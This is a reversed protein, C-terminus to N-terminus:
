EYCDRQQRRGARLGFVCGVGVVCQASPGRSNVVGDHSDITVVIDREVECRGGDIWLVRRALHSELFHTCTPQIHREKNDIDALGLSRRFIVGLRFGVRQYLEFRNVAHRFLHVRLLDVDRIARIISFANVVRALEDCGDSNFVTIHESLVQGHEGDVVLQSCAIDRQGVVPVVVYCVGGLRASLIPVHIGFVATDALKAGVNDSFHVAQPKHHINGVNGLGGGQIRHTERARGHNGGM